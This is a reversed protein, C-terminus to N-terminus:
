QEEGRERMAASNLIRQFRQQLQKRYEAAPVGAAMAQNRVQELSASLGPWQRNGAANLFVDDSEFGFSTVSALPLRYNDPLGIESFPFGFAWDTHYGIRHNSPNVSVQAHTICNYGPIRYKSRLMETLVRLSHVQATNLADGDTQAELAVGLFSDNLYVFTGRDDSWISRGAHNAADTEQVVRYVRGFRDIVYHYARKGKVFEVLSRGIRKLNRTEAPEFPAQHSETSHFVIGAPDRRTDFAEERSGTVGPESRRFIAYSGRARNATVFEKEVRLGNSFIEFNSNQEVLWVAAAPTDGPMPRQVPVVTVVKRVNSPVPAPIFVWAWLALPVLVRLHKRRFWRRELMPESSHVAAERLFRLREIPDEIRNARWEVLPASTPSPPKLTARM